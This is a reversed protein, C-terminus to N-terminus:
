EKKRKEVLFNKICKWGPYERNACEECYRDYKGDPLKVIPTTLFPPLKIDCIYCNKNM